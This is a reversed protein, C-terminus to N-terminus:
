SADRIENAEPQFVLKEPPAKADNVFVLKAHRALDAVM